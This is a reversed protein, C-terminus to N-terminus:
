QKFGRRPRMGNLRPTSDTTADGSVKFPSPRSIMDMGPQARMGDTEETEEDDYATATDTVSSSTNENDEKFHSTVHIMIKILYTEIHSEIGPTSSRSFCVM